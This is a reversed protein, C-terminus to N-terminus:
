EAPPDLYCSLRIYEDYNDSLYMNYYHMEGVKFQSYDPIIEWAGELPQYSIEPISYSVAKINESERTNLFIRDDSKLQYHEGEQMDIIYGEAENYIVIHPTEPDLAKIYNGFEYDNAVTTTIKAEPIETSPEETETDEVKLEETTEGMDAESVQQETVVPTEEVSVDNKSNACGCLLFTIFVVNLITQLLKRM